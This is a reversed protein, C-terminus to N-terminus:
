HSVFILDYLVEYMSVTMVAFINDEGLATKNNDLATNIIRLSQYKFYDHDKGSVDSTADRHACYFLSCVLPIKPNTMAVKLWYDGPNAPADKPIEM